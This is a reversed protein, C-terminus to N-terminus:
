QNEILRLSLDMKKLVFETQKNTVAFTSYSSLSMYNILLDWWLKTKSRKSLGYIM